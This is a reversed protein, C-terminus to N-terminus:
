SSVCLKRELRGKGLLVGRIYVDQTAIVIQECCRYPRNVFIYRPDTPLDAFGQIGYGLGPLTDGLRVRKM